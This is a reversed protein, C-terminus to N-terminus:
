GNMTHLATALDKILEVVEAPKMCVRGVRAGPTSGTGGVKDIQPKYINLAVRGDILPTASVEVDDPFGCEGMLKRIM